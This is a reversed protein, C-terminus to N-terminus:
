DDEPDVKEDVAEDVTLYVDNRHRFDHTAKDITDAIIGWIPISLFVIWGPHWWGYGMGMILFAIVSGFVFIPTLDSLKWHKLFSFIGGVIPISFYIVWGIPWVLPYPWVGDYLCGLTIYLVTCIFVLSGCVAGEVIGLIKRRRKEAENPRRVLGDKDPGEHIHIGGSGLHVEEGDESQIHIGSSDIHIHDKRKTQTTEEEPEAEEKAQEEQKEQEKGEQELRKDEIIDDVSQETNLLDDLSVNYLKALCILNDTDPSAEAREWKSVAQRTLGLREALQEQSLGSKKRLEALRNAIEINM